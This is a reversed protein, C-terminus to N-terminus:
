HPGGLPICSLKECALTQDGLILTANHGKGKFLLSQGALEGKFTEGVFAEDMITVQRTVDIKEGKYALKTAESTHSTQLQEDGCLYIASMHGYKDHPNKDSVTHNENSAHDHGVHTHADSCAALILTLTSLVLQRSKMNKM